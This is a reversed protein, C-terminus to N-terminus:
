GMNREEEEDLEAQLEAASDQTDTKRRKLPNPTDEPNDWGPFVADNWSKLVHNRHRISSPTGDAGLGRLYRLQERFFTKNKDETFKTRGSYISEVVTACLAILGLHALTLQAIDWLDANVVVQLRKKQAKNISGSGWIFGCAVQFLEENLCRGRAPKPNGDSGMAYLYESEEFAAKLAASNPRADTTWDGPPIEPWHLHANKLASRMLYKRADYFGKKMIKKISALDTVGMIYECENRIILAGARRENMDERKNQQAATEDNPAEVQASDLDFKARPVFINISPSFGSVFTGCARAKQELQLTADDKIPRQAALPSTSAPVPIVQTSPTSHLHQYNETLLRVNEDKERALRRKLDLIEQAPTGAPARNEDGPM